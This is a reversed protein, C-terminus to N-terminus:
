VYKMGSDILVDELLVFSQDNMSKFRAVSILCFLDADFCLSVTGFFTVGFMLLADGYFNADIWL